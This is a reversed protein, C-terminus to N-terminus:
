SGPAALAQLAPELEALLERARRDGDPDLGAATRAARALRKHVLYVELRHEDLPGAIDVFGDFLAQELRPRSEAGLTARLEVVFTALDFEPEGRAFRDFDILGLRGQADVLWQGLHAAGHIPVLPRPRLRAHAQELHEFADQLVETLEPDAAMARDLARRTRALQHAADDARAPTLPAVALEGLAAGVRHVLLVGEPQTLRNEIPEGPVVGYWSALTGPDWGHPRAVAFSLLGRASAAWREEAESQDDVDAAFVKVFRADAGLGGRVTCRHGPHYRVVEPSHLSELVARLGPLRPDDACPGIELRGLDGGDVADLGQGTDGADGPELLRVQVTPAGPVDYVLLAWPSRRPRLKGYVRRWPGGPDLSKRMAWADLHRDVVGAELLALRARYPAPPANRGTNRSTM